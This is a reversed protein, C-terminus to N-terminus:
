SSHARIHGILAQTDSPTLGGGTIPEEDLDELVQLTPDDLIQRMFSIKAGLRQEVVEDITDVSSLVTIRTETDPPLGLRHIRDVSQLFRGAAFDRDVYIADHCEHHLSIGEGLTAPNSLLVMCSPDERFRLIEGERDKTGGHVLAPSHPELLQKLTTLNRIFTSWVLTKRGLAANRAVIDIVQQFKPALEYAPLTKLLESLTSDGPMDLPGVQYALPEYRTTGVSLLSPTTAAMMLYILIRGLSTLDEQSGLARASVQGLLADYVERHLPTLEVRRIAISVKPLGLEAKTTRTFLPSLQRSAAALDGSAVAQVVQRRGTGPWVFSFLNELDKM